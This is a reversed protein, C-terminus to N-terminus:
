TNLRSEIYQVSSEVTVFNPYDEEPIKIACERRLSMIIDLFDMSDFNIQDKISVADDLGSFDEDPAIEKFIEILLNRIEEKKM